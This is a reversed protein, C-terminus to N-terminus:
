ISSILIEVVVIPQTSELKDKFFFFAGNNDAHRIINFKSKPVM